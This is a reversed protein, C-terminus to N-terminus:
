ISRSFQNENRQKRWLRADLASSINRVFLRGLSTIRVHDGAVLVLEDSELSKLKEKAVPVFKPDLSDWPVVTEQRCMLNLIQGRLIRDERDLYHGTIHPLQGESLRQEYLDVSKENQVFAGLSDSISSVGLGLLLASPQTTYGMFNRHLNGSKSAIFLPDEKLAFHDMGISAYGMSEMLRFGLQVMDWKAEAKPLDVETYLRQIKSKWPVHAYSYFAFRDPRMPRLANMTYAVSETTQKPLGYVLDVNVSDFGADRAWDNVRTTQEISQLRNIMRQVEQDFDQVGLSVRRFGLDALTTLHDKTTVNPHVEVSFQHDQAPVSATLLGSVLRRLNSPSFFTPTGGGLHIEQIIPADPLLARTLEWERLVASIYSEEVGHDKTIRKNCACFSCLTECYPLHVYLSIRGRSLNFAAHVSDLWREKNITEPEWYPVTPYSTYRPVPLDYKALLGRTLQDM